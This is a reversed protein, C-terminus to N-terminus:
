CPRDLCMVDIQSAGANNQMEGERRGKRGEEGGERGGEEGFPEAVTLGGKRVFLVVKEVGGGGEKGGEGWAPITEWSGERHKVTTGDEAQMFPPSPPLSPPLSPSLPPFSDGVETPPLIYKRSKAGEM